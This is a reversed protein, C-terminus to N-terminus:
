GVYCLVVRPSGIGHKITPPAEEPSTHGAHCVGCAHRTRTQQRSARASARMGPAKGTGRRALIGRCEADPGCRPDTWNAKLSRKTDIPRPKM